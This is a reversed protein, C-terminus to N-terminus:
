NELETPYGAEKWGRISPDQLVKINSYGFDMLREAISVSDSEGPGCDCYVVIPKVKPIDAVQGENLKPTWPLSIAGKIHGKKYARGPQVDIITVDAKSDLLKKMEQITIRPVDDGGALVGVPVFFPLALLMLLGLNGMIIRM